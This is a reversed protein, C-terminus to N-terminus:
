TFFSDNKQHNSCPRTRQLNSSSSNNLQQPGPPDTNHPDMSPACQEGAGSSLMMLVPGEVKELLSPMGGKCATERCYRAVKESKSSSVATKVHKKKTAADTFSHEIKVPFM